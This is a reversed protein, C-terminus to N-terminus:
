LAVTGIQCNVGAKAGVFLAVLLTMDLSEPRRNMCYRFGMIMDLVVEPMLDNLKEEM